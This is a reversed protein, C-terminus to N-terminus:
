RNRGSIILSEAVRGNDSWSPMMPGHSKHAQESPDPTKVEPKLTGAVVADSLDFDVLVASLYECSVPGVHGPM